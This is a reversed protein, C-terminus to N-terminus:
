VDFMVGDLSHTDVTYAMIFFRLKGSKLKAELDLFRLIIQGSWDLDHGM